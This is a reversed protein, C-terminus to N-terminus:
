PFSPPDLYREGSAPRLMARLVEPHAHQLPMDMYKCVKPLSAIAEILEGDVTAPYLYCCASGNSGRWRTFSTCCARWGGRREGRDRGYMSSDQAILVLEETGGRAFARAEALISERSRSRFPGRLSAPHHLVHM